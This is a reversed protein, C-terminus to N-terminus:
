GAERKMQELMEGMKRHVANVAQLPRVMVKFEDILGDKNFHIMDVGNVKIDDLMLTFELIADDGDVVERVYEFEQNLVHMAATLYALSIAKGRQPTHVVPSIFVCDDALLEALREPSKHQMVEHWRAVPSIM